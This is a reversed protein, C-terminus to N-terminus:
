RRVFRPQTCGLITCPNAKADLSFQGRETFYAGPPAMHRVEDVADTQLKPRLSFGRGFGPNQIM